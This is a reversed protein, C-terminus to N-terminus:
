SVLDFPKIKSRVAMSTTSENIPRIMVSTPAGVELHRDYSCTTRVHTAPWGHAGGPHPIYSYGACPTYEFPAQEECPLGDVWELLTLAWAAFIPTTCEESEGAHASGTALLGLSLGFAIVERHHRRLSLLASEMRLM